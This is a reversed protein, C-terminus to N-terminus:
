KPQDTCCGSKACRLWGDERCTGDSKCAPGQGPKNCGKKKKGSGSDSQGAGSVNQAKSLTVKKNPACSDVVNGPCEFRAGPKMDEDREWCTRVGSLFQRGNRHDCLFAARPEGWWTRLESVYVEQGIKDAPIPQAPVKAAVAVVAAFYANQDLGACTGHKRWEHGELNPYGPMWKDELEKALAPDLHHADLGCAAGTDCGPSGACTSPYAGDDYQPWLGYVTPHTAGFRTEVDLCEPHPMQTPKRAVTGSCFEPLWSQELLYYDFAGPPDAFVAGPSSLL